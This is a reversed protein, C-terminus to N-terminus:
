ILKSMFYKIVTKKLKYTRMVYIIDQIPLFIWYPILEKLNEGFMSKQFKVPYMLQYLIFRLGEDEVFHELLNNEETEKFKKLGYEFTYNKPAMEYVKGMEIVLVSFASLFEKDMGLKFMEQEEKNMKYKKNLVFGFDLLQVQHGFTPVDKGFIKVYKRDTYKVGINALHLDLHVYGAKHMLYVAYLVQVVLSYNLNINESFNIKEMSVDILNLIQRSCYPSKSLAILHKEKSKRMLSAYKQVHECRNVVDYEILQMFQDPNNNTFNTMFEIERWLPSSLDKNLDKELIHGIKLAYKKGDKEVLYVTGYMGSGLERIIKYDEIM